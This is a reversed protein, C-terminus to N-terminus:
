GAFFLLTAWFCVALATGGILVKGAYGVSGYATLFAFIVLVWEDFDLM